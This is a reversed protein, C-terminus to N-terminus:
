PRDKWKINVPRLVAAAIQEATMRSGDPNLPPPIADEMDAKSPQYSSRVLTVDRPQDPKKRTAPKKAM